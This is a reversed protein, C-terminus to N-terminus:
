KWNLTVSFDLFLLPRWVKLRRCVRQHDGMELIEVPKGEELDVFRAYEPPEITESAISVFKKGPPLDACLRRCICDFPEHCPPDFVKAPYHPGQVALSMVTQMRKMDTSATEEPNEIYDDAYVNISSFLLLALVLARMRAM